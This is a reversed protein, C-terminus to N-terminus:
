HEHLVAPLSFLRLLTISTPRKKIEAKILPVKTPKLQFLDKSIIKEYFFFFISTLTAFIRNNQLPLM